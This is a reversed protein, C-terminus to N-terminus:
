NPKKTLLESQTQYLIAFFGSLKDPIHNKVYELERQYTARVPNNNIRRIAGLLKTQEACNKRKKEWDRKNQKWKLSDFGIPNDKNFYSYPFPTYWTHSEKYRRADELREAYGTWTRQVSNFTLCQGFYHEAVYSIARKREGEFVTEGQLMYRIMLHVMMTAYRLRLQILEKNRKAMREKYSAPPPVNKEEEKLKLRLKITELVSSGFDNKALNRTTDKNTDKKDFLIDATSSGASNTMSNRGASEAQNIIIKNFHEKFSVINQESKAVISSDNNRSAMWTEAKELNPKLSEQKGSLDVIYLLHPNIIIEYNRTPGHKIKQIVGAKELREARRIFTSHHGGDMQKRIETNNTFLHPLDYRNIAMAEPTGNNYARTNNQAINRELLRVYTYFQAFHAPKIQERSEKDQNYKDIYKRFARQTNAFNIKPEHITM